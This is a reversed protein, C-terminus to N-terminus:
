GTWVEVRVGVRALSTIVKESSNGEVENMVSVYFRSYHASCSVSIASGVQELNLSLVQLYSPPHCKLKSSLNLLSFMCNSRTWLSTCCCYSPHLWRSMSFYQSGWLNLKGHSIVINSPSCLSEFVFYAWPSTTKAVTSNIVNCVLIIQFPTCIRTKIHGILKIWAFCSINWLHKCLCRTPIQLLLLIINKLSMDYWAWLWHDIAM